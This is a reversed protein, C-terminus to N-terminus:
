LTHDSLGIPIVDTERWVDTRKYCQANHSEPDVYLALLLTNRPPLKRNAEEEYVKATPHRKYSCNYRVSFRRLLAVNTEQSSPLLRPSSMM